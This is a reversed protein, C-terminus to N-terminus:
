AIKSIGATVIMALDDTLKRFAQKLGWEHIKTPLLFGHASANRLAKALKFAEEWSDIPKPEVLWCNITDMDPPRLGLFLALDKDGNDLWKELNPNKEPTPPNIPEYDSLSCKKIFKKHRDNINKPKSIM